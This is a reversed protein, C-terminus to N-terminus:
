TNSKPGAGRPILRWAFICVLSGVFASILDEFTIKIEGLGLDIHFLRFLFGGVLAGLMGLGMNIWPGFGRKTFTVPRGALTGALAGIILWVIIEGISISV